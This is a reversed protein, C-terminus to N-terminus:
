FRMSYGADFARGGNTRGAAAVLDRDLINRLSASVVYTRKKAVWSWAASFDFVGYSGYNVQERKVSEYVAVHPGVWAGSLALGLGRLRPTQFQYRLSGGATFRPLRALQRGVEEPLDPSSTTIANLWTTKVMGTVATSLKKRVGLELGTFREGGSSVYQPQRQDPDLVPDNYLPNTRTIDQNWLRYASATASFKGDGASYRVGTEVGATSENGILRSTRADVRREPQFATSNNLFAAFRNPVIHWVIGAHYSAQSVAASAHPASAGVRHDDVSSRVWDNQLGFTANIRDDALAMRETFFVGYYDSGEDRQALVRSFTTESYPV